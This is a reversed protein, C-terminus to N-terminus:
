FLKWQHYLADGRGQVRGTRLVGLISMNYKISPIDAQACNRIFTQLQEIDRDREPSQALMIAPHKETDIYSSELFPPATCDISIGYKGAMDMMAKLEDVTAYIRDGKIEPYGCINRVGYRALYKLHIDNTPATQDGLKMQGAMADADAAAVPAALGRAAILGAAGTASIFQRRNM